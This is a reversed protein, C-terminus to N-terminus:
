EIVIKSILEALRGGLVPLPQESAIRLASKLSSALGPVVEQLQRAYELSGKFAHFDALAPPMSGAPYRTHSLHWMKTRAQCEWQVSSSRSPCLISMGLLTEARIYPPRAVPFSCGQVGTEKETPVMRYLLLIADTGSVQM